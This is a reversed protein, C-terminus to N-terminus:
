TIPDALWATIRANPEHGVRTECEILAAFSYHLQQRFALVRQQDCVRSEPNTSKKMELVLVNPGHPGRRHVIMDPIVRARGERDRANGCEEPLGLRKPTDGQRDYEIDVAFDPFEAQLYMALRSAICRENLDNELLHRDNMVLQRLAAELHARSEEPNM